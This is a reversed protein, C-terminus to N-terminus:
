REGTKITRNRPQGFALMAVALLVATRPEPVSAVGLGSGPPNAFNARWTNYGAPDGGFNAPSKRWLVYDAADVKGNGNYDDTLGAVLLGNQVNGSLTFPATQNLSDLRLQFTGAADNSLTFRGLTFTGVDTNTTTYWELNIGSATFASTASGGLDVAGGAARPAAEALGGSGTVYTDWRLSPLFPFNTPDPGTYVPNPTGAGIDQYISGTTLVVRMNSALWDTTANVSLDQSVFGAPPTDGGETTVQTFTGSIDASAM